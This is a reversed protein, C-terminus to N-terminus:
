QDSNGNRKRHIAESVRGINTGIKRAIENIPMGGARLARAQEEQAPTLRPYKKPAVFDPAERSMENLAYKICLKIFKLDDSKRANELITRARPINSM